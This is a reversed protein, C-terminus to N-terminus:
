NFYLLLSRDAGRDAGDRLPGFPVALVGSEDCLLPMREREATSFGAMCPLRRVLKHRGGQLIREGARRTRVSLRGNIIASSFNIRTSYKYVNEPADPLHASASTLVAVGLGDPLPNEGERLFIEFSQAPLQEVEVTLRGNKLLVRAGPVSIASQMVGREVLGALADIHVAEPPKPLLARMVRALIPRPLAALAAVSPTNGERRLFRAAEGSLYAEDEALSAACRAASIAGSPWLETLIPLVEMRLRNRPCCAETNTSDSVFSLAHVRCYQLIQAKTMQLLPRVIRAAGLARCAPIGCLGRLGSGRMLNQLLTELQDDAHHATLLLPIGNKRLHEELLAYRAERAASELGLGSEAALRPVDAYLVEFAVGLRECLATCFAVDRDAESGRIGHHVHVASLPQVGADQMMHLLAVSDAGGSLAVAVPSDSALGATMRPDCVGAPFCRESM